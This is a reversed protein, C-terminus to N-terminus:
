SRMASRSVASWAHCYGVPDIEITDRVDDADFQVVGRETRLAV